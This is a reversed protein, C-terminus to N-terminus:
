RRTGFAEIEIMQNTNYCDYTIILDNTYDWEGNLNQPMICDNYVRNKFVMYEKTIANSGQDDYPSRWGGQLSWEMRPEMSPCPLNNNIDDCRECSVINIEAKRSLYCGHQINRFFHYHQDDDSYVEWLMEDGRFTSDATIDQGFGKSTLYGGFAVKIAIVPPPSASFENDVNPYDRRFSSASGYVQYEIVNRGASCGAVMLFAHLGYALLFPTSIGTSLLM